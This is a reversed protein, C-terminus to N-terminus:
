WEVSNGANKVSLHLTCGREGNLSLLDTSLRTLSHTLSGVVTSSGSFLESDIIYWLRAGGNGDHRSARRVQKYTIRRTHFTESPQRAQTDTTAKCVAGEGSGYYPSALRWSTVTLKAPLSNKSFHGPSRALDNM